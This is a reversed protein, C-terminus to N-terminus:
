TEHARLHTYSVANPLRITQGTRQSLKKCFEVANNWSVTEVPNDAGKYRSPNKGMIAAYQAQTVETAGMYFPKTIRVRHQLGENEHHTKDNPSSCMMFEGVPIYVLTMTIGDGFDLTRAQRRGSKPKSVVQAGTEGKPTVVNSLSEEASVSEEAFAWAPLLLICSLCIAKIIQNRNLGNMILGKM